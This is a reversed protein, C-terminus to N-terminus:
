VPSGIKRSNPRSCHLFCHKLGMYDRTEDIILWAQTYFVKNGTKPTGYTGLSHVESCNNKLWFTDLKTRVCNIRKQGRSKLTTFCIGIILCCWWFVTMKQEGAEDEQDFDVIFIPLIQWHASKKGNAECFGWWSDNKKTGYNRCTLGDEIHDIRCEGFPNSGSSLDKWIEFHLPGRAFNWM